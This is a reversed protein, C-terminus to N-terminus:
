VAVFGRDSIERLIDVASDYASRTMTEVIIEAELPSEYPDDIGTFGIIEGRRAKAYLGKTDRQECIDVPTNVFIEIFAGDPFMARVEARSERYPSIAACVAVGGHRVIEAAVFGIRLVNADRDERSFGLGRSLHTRVVDGDLLTVRRGREMLMVTLIEAITSKGAGSLGTFWICVGRRHKPPFSNHLLEAIEPRTYWQPLSRGKELYQERIETGSISFTRRSGNTKSVEEYRDEDPFYAMEDFCVPEIGLEDAFEAALEQAALPQYFPSGDSAVGPSAHDRGVIFHTAGYNRRIAMHWVAERPGAMRMALPIVSLVTAAPDYYKEVLEQYSRVRTYHDIDGPKTMGVTPQLLLSAGVSAAARKTMEEHVRHIPNRTQFAVVNARGLQKLHDRVQGPTLRLERFDFYKPLEIVRLEGSVFDDPWRDSEAVLPHKPDATALVKEKYGARDWRYIEDVRIVALLNNRQDRLALESDLKAGSGSALGLTVPIPFVPGDTLRMTEVVSEYDASSLFRTLPSFAGTALLELDCQERVSIQISPLRSAREVARSREEDAILLDILTQPSKQMM